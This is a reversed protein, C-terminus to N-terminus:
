QESWIRVYFAVDIWERAAFRADEGPMSRSLDRLSRLGGSSALVERGETRATWWPAPM